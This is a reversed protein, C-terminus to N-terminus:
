AGGSGVFIGEGGTDLDGKFVVVGANNISPSGVFLGVFTDESFAKFPGDTGAIKTFVYDGAGAMPACWVGWVLAVIRAGAVNTKM